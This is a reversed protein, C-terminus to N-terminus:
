RKEYQIQENNNILRVGKIGREKGLLPPNKLPLPPKRGRKFERRGREGVV